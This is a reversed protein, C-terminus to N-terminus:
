INFDYRRTRTNGMATDMVARDIQERVLANTLQQAEQGATDPMSFMVSSAAQAWATGTWRFAMNELQKVAAKAKDEQEYLATMHDHLSTTSGKGHAWEAYYMLADMEEASLEFTHADRYAYM